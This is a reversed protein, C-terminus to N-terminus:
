SQRRENQKTKRALTDCAIDFVLGHDYRQTARLIEDHEPETLVSFDPRMQQWLWAWWYDHDCGGREDREAGKGILKAVMENVEDRPMNWWDRLILLDCMASDVRFAVDDTTRAFPTRWVIFDTERDAWSEFTGHSPPQTAVRDLLELRLLHMATEPTIVGQELANRGSPPLQELLDTETLLRLADNITLHSVSTANALDDRREFLRIYRQATRPTLNCTDRVWPLFQGHQLQRKAAALLEGCKIAHQVGVKKASEVAQHERQVHQSIEALSAPFATRVEANITSADKFLM